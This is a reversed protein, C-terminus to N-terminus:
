LHAFRVERHRGVTATLHDPPQARPTVPRSWLPTIIQIRQRALL